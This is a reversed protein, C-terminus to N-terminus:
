WRGRHSNAIRSRSRAMRPQNYASLFAASALASDIGAARICPMDSFILRSSYGVQRSPWDYLCANLSLCNKSQCRRRGSLKWSTLIFRVISIRASSQDLDFSRRQSKTSVYRGHIFSCAVQRIRAGLQRAASIIKGGDPGCPELGMRENATNRLLLDAPSPGEQVNRENGTVPSHSANSASALTNLTSYSEKAGLRALVSRRLLDNPLRLRYSKEPNGRRGRITQNLNLRLALSGSHHVRETWITSSSVSRRHCQTRRGQRHSTASPRRQSERFLIKHQIAGASQVLTSQM